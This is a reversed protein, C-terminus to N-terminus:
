LAAIEGRVAREPADELEDRVRSREALFEADHMETFDDSEGNVSTDRPQPQRSAGRRRRVAIVSRRRGPATLYEREIGQRTRNM